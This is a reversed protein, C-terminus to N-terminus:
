PSVWRVRAMANGNAGLTAPHTWVKGDTSRHVHGGYDIAVYVGGGYAVVGSVGAGPTDTWTAGDPSVFAHGGGVAVFGARGFAVGDTGSALPGHAHWTAGGDNSTAVATGGTAVFVGAGFALDSVGFGVSAGDTWTAGDGTWRCRGGDGAAVWRGGLVDGYALSRFADTHPDDVDVWTKGDASHAHRGYGGAAVWTGKAYAIGGFWQTMQSTETWARADLSRKVRWGVAVVAGAGAGVDRLLYSDDGGNAVDEQDDTWATGDASRLRRGGYGVAVFFGPPPAADPALGGDTTTPADITAGADSPGLGGGADSGGGGGADGQDAPDSAGQGADGHAPSLSATSDDASCAVLLALFPVLARPELNVAV